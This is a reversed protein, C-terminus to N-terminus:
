TLEHYWIESSSCERMMDEDDYSDSPSSRRGNIARGTKSDRLVGAHDVFPEARQNAALHLQILMRQMDLLYSQLTDLFRRTQLHKSSACRCAGTLM